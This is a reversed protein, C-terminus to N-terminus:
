KIGEKLNSLVTDIARGIEEPSYKPLSLFESDNCRGEARRWKNHDELIQMAKILKM